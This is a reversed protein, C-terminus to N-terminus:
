KELLRREYKNLGYIEAALQTFNEIDNSTGANIIRQKLDNNISSWM